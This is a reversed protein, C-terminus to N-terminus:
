SNQEGRGPDPLPAPPSPFSRAVAAKALPHSHAITQDRAHSQPPKLRQQAQPQASVVRVGRGGRGGAPSPSCRADARPRNASNEDPLQARPKVTKSGEGRTPSLPRPHPSLGRMPQKQSPIPRLSQRTARPIPTAYTTQASPNARVGGEGGRGGRGGAPSPSFRAAARPRDASNQGPLRARPTVTKSGEGRTPSLPQPHPSLGRLPQKQMPTPHHPQQHNQNPKQHTLRNHAQPQATVVRVGRGGRGGAPSPSFRAAHRPGRVLPRPPSYCTDARLTLHQPAQPQATVVRVGRGGRGGAPSPSLSNDVGNSKTAPSPSCRAGHRPGRVLPRPPSYCTHARLTLHQPAQTQATM